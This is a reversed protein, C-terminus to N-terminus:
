SLQVKFALIVLIFDMSTKSTKPLFTSDNDGLRESVTISAVVEETDRSIEASGGCWPLFEKYSPVDDVLQYMKEASYPVLASKKVQPM